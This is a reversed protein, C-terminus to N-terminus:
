RTMRLVRACTHSATSCSPLRGGPNNTRPHLQSTKIPAPPALHTTSSPNPPNSATIPASPLPTSTSPSTSIPFPPPVYNTAPTPPNPKPPNPTPPHHRISCSYLLCYKRINNWRNKTIRLNRVYVAQMAPVEVNHSRRTYVSHSIRWRVLGDSGGRCDVRRRGGRGGRGDCGWAGEAM